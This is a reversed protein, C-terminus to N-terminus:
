RELGAEPEREAWREQGGSTQPELPPEGAGVDGRDQRATDGSSVILAVAGLVVAAAFAMRLTVAEDLILWGLFVAVVPNVFAYTSVLSTRVNRLLWLYASFGVFSGALILWGLGLWSRAEIAGVHLDAFQGTVLAVALIVGAGALQQMGSGLLPARPLPANRAYLSGIAWGVTAAVAVLMGDLPVDNRVASTGVLIAEGAFGAVLGVSVRWGLPASKLLVRDFLALWLPVLAIILAVIGTPTGLYESWAVGANGGFLLFAGVVSAGRWQAGTPREGTRVRALAYLAAGAVLFRAGAGVLPPISRNVERIGLYTTGWVFYLAGLVTWTRATSSGTASMAAPYSRMREM